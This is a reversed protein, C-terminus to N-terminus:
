PEIGLRTPAWLSALSNTDKNLSLVTPTVLSMICTYINCLNDAKIDGWELIQVHAEKYLFSLIMIDLWEVYSLVEYLWPFRIQGFFERQQCDKYYRLDKPTM